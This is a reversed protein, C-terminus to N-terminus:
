HNEKELLETVKNLNYRERAVTNYYVGKLSDDIKQSNDLNESSVICDYCAPNKIKYEYIINGNEDKLEKGDEKKAEKKNLDVNRYGVIENGENVLDKLNQCDIKHYYENENDKATYYIMDKDIYQKNETSTVIAYNNYIKTGIPIGQMFTVINVNSLLKDWDQETLIPMKFDYTKVAHESYTFIANSLSSQISNRMIERKHANFYSNENEPDNIIGNDDKKNSMALIQHNDKEFEKYPKGYEDLANQPTVISKITFSGGFTEETVWKTFKIAEKYYNIASSDTIQVGAYYTGDESGDEAVLYGSRSIYKGNMYGYVTIYNDLSYNVVIDNFNDKKYRLSYPIYPKLGHRYRTKITTTGDENEEEYETEIPSYIYYGDYLTFLVAPVYESMFETGAAPTGLSTALSTFLANIAATVDRRLSNAITSKSNEITNLNFAVVADHTASLLKTDYKQVISATDIQMGIYESLILTMPIIIIVFIVAMNQLKM